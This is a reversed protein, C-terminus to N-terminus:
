SRVWFLRILFRGFGDREKKRRLPLDANPDMGLYFLRSRWYRSRDPRGRRAELDSLSSLCHAYEALEEQMVSKISEFESGDTRWEDCIRELWDRLGQGSSLWWLDELPLGQLCYNLLFPREKAARELLEIAESRRGAASFGLGEELFRGFRDARRGDPGLLHSGRVVYRATRAADGGANVKLRGAQEWGMEYALAIRLNDYRQPDVYAYAAGGIKQMPRMSQVGEVAIAGAGGSQPSHRSAEALLHATRLDDYAYFTNALRGKWSALRIGVLNALCLSVFLALLVWDRGPSRWCLRRALKLYAWLAVSCFVVAICPSLYIFYRSPSVAPFSTYQHRLLFMVCLLYWAFWLLLRRKHAVFGTWFASVSFLTLALGWLSIQAPLYHQAAEPRGMRLATGVPWFFSALVSVFPGLVNYPFLLQRKDQFGQLLFGCLIVSGTVVWLRKRGKKWRSARDLFLGAGLLASLGTLFFAPYKLASQVPTLTAGAPLFLDKMRDPLGSHLVMGALINDAGSSLIWVPYFLCGVFLPLWRRYRAMRGSHGGPGLLVDMGILAIGILASRQLSALLGAALAAGYAGRWGAAGSHIRQEAKLYFHLLLLITFVAMLHQFAVPWLIAHLHALLFFYFCASFFSVKRSLGLQRSVRGLLFATAGHIGIAIWVLHQIKLGIAPTALLLFAKVVPPELGPPQPALIFAAIQWATKGEILFCLATLM